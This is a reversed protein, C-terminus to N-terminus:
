KSILNPFAEQVAKKTLGKYMGALKKDKMAIVIKADFPDIAELLSIFMREVKAVNMQEGPGGKAFYRFQKSQRRLHSPANYSSCPEYPPAGSPLIFEIADDFSGKLVDRVFLENHQKLVKVKAERTKENAVRTFIEHLTLTVKNIAM